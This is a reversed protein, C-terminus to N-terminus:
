YFYFYITRVILVNNDAFASINRSWVAVSHLSTATPFGSYYYLKARYFYSSSNCGGCKLFVKDCTLDLSTHVCTDTGPTCAGGLDVDM